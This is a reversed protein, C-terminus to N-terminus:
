KPLSSKGSQWQSWLQRVYTDEYLGNLSNEMLTKDIKLLDALANSIDSTRRYEPSSAALEIASISISLSSMTKIQDETFRSLMISQDIWDILTRINFHTHVALELLDATALNQVSEIGEEELRYEKWINIGRVTQLPIDTRRSDTINLKKLVFDLVSKM